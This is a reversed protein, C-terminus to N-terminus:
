KANLMKRWEREREREREGEKREGGFIYPRRRSFQPQAPQQQQSHDFRNLAM